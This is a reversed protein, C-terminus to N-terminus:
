ATEPKNSIIRATVLLQIILMLLYGGFLATVSLPKLMLYVCAFGLLTLLFKGTQGTNFARVILNASRAGTYRFAYASFYLNPIIAVLGGALASVAWTSHVVWLGAVLPLMVMLQVLPIRFVPPKSISTM